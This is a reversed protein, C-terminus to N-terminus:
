RFSSWSGGIDPRDVTTDFDITAKGSGARRWAFITM